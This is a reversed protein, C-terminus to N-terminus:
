EVSNALVVALGFDQTFQAREGAAAIALNEGLGSGNIQLTDTGGQGDITDNDDGVNWVFRDNGGGLFALANGDGGLLIDNGASGLITDAGLGGVVQLKLIGAALGSANIIDNEDGGDIILKDTTEATSVTM